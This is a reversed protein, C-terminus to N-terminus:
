DLVDYSAGEDDTDAEFRSAQLDFMQRYRGGAAILEAHDGLEVVRGAELVAIQDAHRVTSFRHSILITTVGRTAALLRDFIAAEGRVDLQATPEDLLVLRAGRRVACLARALAVRQWQGGSLDRGGAYGTALVADLDAIDDAGADRLAALIDTDPAGDPAVNERLTLDFRLFDQFVAALQHRWSAVDLDRLDVGDVEISGSDPDYFRCLLKALTTKGAGNVGVIALSSGAPVTLDLGRYIPRTTRPYSFRLDRIEIARAPTEPDAARDGLHVAGAPAMADRLRLVAAVPASAGDLAWNLGGFAIASVGVAVSAYVVLDPVSLRGDYAADALAWFVLGNASVVVAVSVLLSQERLRTAAYQLEFLQRRRSRFRDLVWAQLGFLRLEKAAPADVAIQYAYDAHRQAQRVVDTNRDHWIASERLLWHTSSWALALVLAAWWAFGVLVVAAAAGAVLATLGSAIFGMTIYMPPGTMGRDFDRATTLDAALEPDELHGIGPPAVAAQALEDNLWDAVKSGLNQSMADHIPAVVQMAIFVVSMWTLPVVLSESDQVASVVAGMVVAFAAPLAGQLVLLAWWGYALAKDVRPLLAFFKWEPRARLRVLASTMTSM